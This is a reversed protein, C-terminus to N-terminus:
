FRCTKDQIANICSYEKTGWISSGYDIIPQVLSDYLKTYCDYPLGGFPKYKAILLGLARRASTAVISATIHYDLLETLILGLYKYREPFLYIM